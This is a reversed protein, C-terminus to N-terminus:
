CALTECAWRRERRARWCFFLNARTAILLHLWDSSIGSGEAGMCRAPAWWSSFYRARIIRQRASPARTAALKGELLVCFAASDYLSSLHRIGAHVASFPRSTM